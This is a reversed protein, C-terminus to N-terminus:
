TRIRRKAVFIMLGVGAFIVMALAGSVPINTGTPVASDKSNIFSIDRNQIAVTGTDNQKTVTYGESSYDAEKVAYKTGIVIDTFEMEDGHSLTFTIKGEADPTLSVVDTGKKCSIARAYPTNDQNKLTITFSFQKDKSGLSGAVTKKVKLSSVNYEDVMTVKEVDKNDIKVSGNIDVTFAIDSAKVYLGSEPAAEEHLVYTGPKVSITKDKGDESTWTIPAIDTATGTERGTVKMQAGAIEHGNIDTKSIVVDYDAPLDTMSLTEANKGNVSVYFDPFKRNETYARHQNRMAETIGYASGDVGRVGIRFEIDDAKSYGRPPTTERLIYTDDLLRNEETTEYMPIDTIGLTKLTLRYPKDAESTWSALVANDSKRIVQMSAGSVGAGEGDVKYIPIYTQINIVPEYINNLINGSPHNLTVSSYYDNTHESATESIPNSDGNVIAAWSLDGRQFAAEIQANTWNRCEPKVALEGRIIYGANAPMYVASKKGDKMPVLVHYYNNIGTPYAYTAYYKKGEYDVCYFPVYFSDAYNSSGLVMFFRDDDSEGIVAKEFEFRCPEKLNNEIRCVTNESIVNGTGTIVAEQVKDDNVYYAPDEFYLSYKKTEEVGFHSGQPLSVQINGNVQVSAARIKVHYVYNRNISGSYILKSGAASYSWANNKHDINGSIYGGSLVSIDSVGSGINLKIEKNNANLFAGTIDMYIDISFPRKSDNWRFDSIGHQKVIVLDCSRADTMVIKEAENGNVMVTGDAEVTFGIDSTVLYGEPAAEEHLTYSGPRLQITRDKGEESTWIIPTIDASAGTERGTVKMQAGAIEHGNIDTKSIVVDHFAYEDTMTVKDVDKDAIRVDGNIDVTFAIDAAKVYVGGEPVATESMTYTGPRLSVTKNKGDESTWTIPTIDASSGTERGTVKLQAGAVEYGNVDAKSMEVDHFVYEDIMTVKDVDAGGVKVKGEATVVFNIDSAPVYIDSDPVAEEHLIYTGPRLQVTRDKGDESVWEIPTINESAGEERGTIKLQAGAIEHGGVNTKSIVIDHKEEEDVMTLILKEQGDGTDIYPYFYEVEIPLDEFANTYSTTTGIHPKLTFEIDQAKKYGSPVETEKLIYTKSEYTTNYNTDTLINAVNWTHPTDKDSIWEELVEGSSKEVIAMHAGSIGNGSPDTKTFAVLRSKNKYHAIFDRTRNSGSTILWHVMKYGTIDAMSSTTNYGHVLANPKGTEGTYFVEKVLDEYTYQSMDINYKPIYEDIFWHIQVPLKIVIEGDEPRFPILARFYGNEHFFTREVGNMDIFRANMEKYMNNAVNDASNFRIFFMTKGDDYGFIEKSLKFDITRQTNTIVATRDSGGIEGSQHEYSVDFIRNEEANGNDLYFKSNGIEKIEYIASEPLAPISFEEGAKIWVFFSTYCTDKGPEPKFYNHNVGYESQYAGIHTTVSGGMMTGLGEGVPTYSGCDAVYAEGIDMGCSTYDKPLNKILVQVKFYVDDNLIVGTGNDDYIKRVTLSHGKSKDVNMVRISSVEANMAFNVTQAKEGNPYASFAGFRIDDAYGAADAPKIKEHLVYYQPANYFQGVCPKLYIIDKRGTTTWEKVVAGRDDLIQMVAGPMYAGTQDVKEIEVYSNMINNFTIRDKQTLVGEVFNENLKQNNKFVCTFDVNPDSSATEEVRYYVGKPLKLTVIGGANATDTTISVHIHGEDDTVYNTDPVAYGALPIQQGEEENWLRVEFESTYEKYSNTMVKVLELEVPAYKDIMIVKEVNRGDVTVTGDNKVVFAIDSATIYEGSEPAAEEHLTYTGPYLQVTKDQGEVSTWTIPEIDTDDGDARGTIKLQAGAIEHGNIDAKSIVVDCPTMSNVWTSTTLNEAFEGSDNTKTVTYKGLSSSVEELKYHAGRPVTLSLSNEDAGETEIDFYAVGNGDTVVSPQSLLTMGSVPLKEGDQEDWMTLKFRHTQKGEGDVVSKSVKLSGMNRTNMITIENSNGSPNICYREPYERTVAGSIYGTWKGDAEEEIYINDNLDDNTIGINDLSVTQGNKIMFSISKIQEGSERDAVTLNIKFKRGASVFSFYDPMTKTITPIKWNPLGEADTRMLENWTEQTTTDVTEIDDLSDIHVNYGIHRGIEQGTIKSYYKIGNYLSRNINPINIYTYEDKFWYGNETGIEHTNFGPKSLYGDFGDKFWESGGYYETPLLLTFDGNETNIVTDADTSDIPKLEKVPIYVNQFTREYYNYTDYHELVYKQRPESNTTLCFEADITQGNTGSYKHYQKVAYYAKANTFLCGQNYSWSDNYSTYQEGDNYYHVASASPGNMIIIDNEDPYVTQIISNAPAGRVTLLTDPYLAFWEETGNVPDYTYIDNGNEDKSVTYRLPEGTYYDERQTFSVKIPRTAGERDIYGFQVDKRAEFGRIDILTKETKVSINDRYILRSYFDDNENIKHQGPYENEEEAFSITYNGEPLCLYDKDNVFVPSPQDSVGTIERDDNFILYKGNEDMVNMHLDPFINKYNDGEKPYPIYNSNRTGLGYPCVQMDMQALRVPSRKVVDGHEAIYASLDAGEPLVAVFGDAFYVAERSDKYQAYLVADDQDNYDSESIIGSSGDASTSWGYFWSGEKEPVSYIGDILDGDLSESTSVVAYYGYHGTTSYSGSKFFFQVTDGEVEYKETVLSYGSLRGSLSQDYNSSSPTISGDYISVWNNPYNGSSGTEYKITVYLKEAGDIHVVDTTELNRAFNGKRVGDESVNSTKSIYRDPMHYSLTNQGSGGDFTGGNANYTVTYDYGEKLVYQAAEKTVEQEETQVAVEEEDTKEDDKDKNAEDSSINEKESDAEQEKEEERKEFLFDYTNGADALDGTFVATGTIRDEYESIDSASPVEYGAPMFGEAASVEYSVPGNEEGVLVIRASGGAFSAGSAAPYGEEPAMESLAGNEIRYLAGDQEVVFFGEAELLLSDGTYFINDDRDSITVDGEAIEATDGYLDTVTMRDEQTKASLLVGGAEDCIDLIGGEGELVFYVNGTKVPDETESVVPEEGVAADEVAADTDEQLGDREQTENESSMNSDEEQESVNEQVEAPAEEEKILDSPQEEVETNEAMDPEEVAATEAGSPVESEQGEEIAVTTEGLGANEAGLASVSGSFSSGLMMVAVAASLIRKLRHM